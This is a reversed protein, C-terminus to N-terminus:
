CGAGGSGPTRARNRADAAGSAGRLAGSAGTPNRVRGSLRYTKAARQAPSLAAPSSSDFSPSVDIVAARADRRQNPLTTTHLARPLAGRGGTRPMLERALAVILAAATHRAPAALACVGGGALAFAGSTSSVTMVPERMAEGFAELALGIGTTLWLSIRALPWFSM